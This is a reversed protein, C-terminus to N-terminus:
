ISIKGLGADPVDLGGADPIWIDPWAHARVRWVQWAWPESGPASSSASCDAEACRRRVPSNRNASNRPTRSAFWMKNENIKRGRRDCRNHQHPHSM